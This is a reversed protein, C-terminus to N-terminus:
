LSFGVLPCLFFDGHERRQRHSGNLLKRPFPRFGMQPSNGRSVIWSYDSLAIRLCVIVPRLSVDQNVSQVVHLFPETTTGELPRTHIHPATSDMLEESQRTHYDGTVSLLTM